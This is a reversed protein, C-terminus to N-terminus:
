PFVGWSNEDIFIYVERSGTYATHCIWNAKYVHRYYLDRLRHTVYTSQRGYMYIFTRCLPGCPVAHQVYENLYLFFNLEQKEDPSIAWLVVIPIGFHQDFIIM